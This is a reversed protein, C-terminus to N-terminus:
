PMLGVELPHDAMLSFFVSVCDTLRTEYVGAVSDAVTRTVKHNITSNYKTVV